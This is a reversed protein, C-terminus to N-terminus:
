LYILFGERIKYTSASCAYFCQTLIFFIFCPRTPHIFLLLHMNLFWLYKLSFTLSIFFWLHILTLFSFLHLGSWLLPLTIVFTYMRLPVMAYTLSLPPLFYMILLLHLVVLQQVFHSYLLQLQVIILM